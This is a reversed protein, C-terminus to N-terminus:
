GVAEAYAGPSIGYTRAFMRTMHSQDAFGSELAAVALPM